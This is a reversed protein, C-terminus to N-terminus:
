QPGGMMLRRVSTIEPWALEPRAGPGCLRYQAPIVPDEWLEELDPLVGLELAIADALGVYDAYPFQPRPLRTRVARAQALGTRQAALSPPALQGSLVACTWRAQLEMVGFYPGRYMGVFAM